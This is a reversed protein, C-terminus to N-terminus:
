ALCVLAVVAVVCGGVDGEVVINGTQTYSELVRFALLLRGQRFGGSRVTHCYHQSPILATDFKGSPNEPECVCVCLAQSWVPQPCCLYDNSIGTFRAKHHKYVFTSQFVPQALTNCPRPMVQQGIFPKCVAPSAHQPFLMRHLKTNVVIINLHIILTIASFM